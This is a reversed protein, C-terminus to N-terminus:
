EIFKNMMNKFEDYDIYGDKNDDAEQIIDEWVQENIRKGQGLLKRVEDLSINGDGNDDFTNFAARLNESTLLRKKNVTAMIWESYDISGSKDTDADHFLKVVEEETFEPFVRACGERFEDLSLKGDHNTDIQKFADALDKTDEKSALQTVIYSLAAQQLKKESNFSKIGEMATTLKKDEFNADFVTDFWPHQLAEQASIREETDLVLMKSILDKAEESVGKWKSEKFEYEGKVVARCIQDDDKGNFPPSGSLLIFM